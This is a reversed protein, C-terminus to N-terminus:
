PSTSIATFRPFAASFNLRWNPVSTSHALQFDPGDTVASAGHLLKGVYEPAGTDLQQDVHAGVGARAAMRLEIAIREFSREGRIADAISPSALREPTKALRTRVRDIKPQTVHGEATVRVVHSGTFEGGSGAPQGFVCAFRPKRQHAGLLMRRSAMAPEDRVPQGRAVDLDLMQDVPVAALRM